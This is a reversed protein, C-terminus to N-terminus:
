QAKEVFENTYVTKLDLPASIIGQELLIDETIQWVAEDMTGIPADGTDILPIQAQMTASQLDANLTDDYKLALDAMEDPHEIAYQYGKLTARIFREILEPRERITQGTTFIANSYIEIGYDSYFMLTPEHGDLKAQVPENSSFFGSVAQMRGATLENAGHYDEIPVFTLDTSKIKLKNLMGLFQIDWTTDMAPSIVGVTKGVLDQPRQIGTDPLTMVVLPSQRYISSIAVVDQQAARARIISDGANIGFLARGAVVEAVPDIEPGGAVFSVKLNEDAYYGKQDAVYFGAFETTHFWGLQIIVQEPEPPPALPNSCGAIIGSMLVLIIGIIRHTKNFM